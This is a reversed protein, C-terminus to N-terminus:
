SGAGPGRGTLEYLPLLDEVRPMASHALRPTRAGRVFLHSFVLFFLYASQGRPVVREETEWIVWEDMRAAHVGDENTGDAITRGV